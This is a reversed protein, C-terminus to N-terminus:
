YCRVVSNWVRACTRARKQCDNERMEVHTERGKKFSECYEDWGQHRSLFNLETHDQEQLFNCSKPVAPERPVAKICWTHPGRTPPQNTAGDLLPPSTIHTAKTRHLSKCKSLLDWQITPPQKTDYIWNKKKKQKLEDLYLPKHQCELLLKKKWIHCM